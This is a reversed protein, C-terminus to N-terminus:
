LLAILAMIAGCAAAVGLEALLIAGLSRRRDLMTLVVPISILMTLLVASGRLLPHEGSFFGLSSLVAALIVVILCILMVARRKKVAALDYYPIERGESLALEAGRRWKSFIATNYAALFIMLLSIMTMPIEHDMQSALGAGRILNSVLGIVPLLMLAAAIWLCVVGARCSRTVAEVRESRDTVIDPISRDGTMFIFLERSNTVFEWGAEGCFDIYRRTEDPLTGNAGSSLVEANFRASFPECREFEAFLSLRTLKFGRAAMQELYQELAKLDTAQFPLLKKITQKDKKM